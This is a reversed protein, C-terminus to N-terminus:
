NGRQTVGNSANQEFVIKMWAITMQLAQADDFGSLKAEKFFEFLTDTLKQMEPNGM